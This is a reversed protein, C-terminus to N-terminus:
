CTKTNEAHPEPYHCITFAQAEKQLEGQSFFDIKTSEGLTMLRCLCYASCQFSFKGSHPKGNFCKGRLLIRNLSCYSKRSQLYLHINSWFHFRFMKSRHTTLFIIVLFALRFGNQIKESTM